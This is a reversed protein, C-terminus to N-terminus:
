MFTFGSLWLWRNSTNEDIYYLQRLAVIYDV